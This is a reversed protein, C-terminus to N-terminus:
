SAPIVIWQQGTKESFFFISGRNMSKNNRAEKVNIFSIEAWNYLTKTIVCAFSYSIGNGSMSIKNSSYGFANSINFSAWFM